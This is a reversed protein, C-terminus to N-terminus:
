CIGGSDPRRYEPWITPAEGLALATAFASMHEVDHEWKLRDEETLEDPDISAIVSAENDFSLRFAELKLEDAGPLSDWHDYLRDHIADADVDGIEYFDDILRLQDFLVCIRIRRPEDWDLLSPYHRILWGAEANAEAHECQKKYEALREDIKKERTM